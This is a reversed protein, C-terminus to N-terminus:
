LAHELAHAMSSLGGRLSARSDLAQPIPPGVKFSERALSYLYTVDVAPVTWCDATLTLVM